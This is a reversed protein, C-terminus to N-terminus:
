PDLGLKHTTRFHLKAVRALGERGVIAAVRRAAELIRPNSGGKPLDTAVDDSLRALTHLFAARAVISAAAVAPHGEARPKQILELELGRRQLARAVLSEEAFRDVLVRRLQPLQRSLEAIADAHAEALIRNVNGVQGHLRNYEEPELVVCACPVVERIRADAARVQFDSLTKGDRVGLARLAQEAEADMGAAAVVLPGFYDGKGAEDSGILPGHPLGRAAARTATEGLGEFWRECAARAAAGQVVVKGSRYANVVVGPGRAAFHGYQLARFDFGGSELRSRLEAIEAANLVFTIIEM